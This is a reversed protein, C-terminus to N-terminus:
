EDTGEKKWAIDYEAIEDSFKYRICLAHLKNIFDEGVKDDRVGSIALEVNIIM